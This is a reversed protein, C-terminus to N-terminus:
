PRNANSQDHIHKVVRAPGWRWVLGRSGLSLIRSLERFRSEPGAAPVGLVAVLLRRVACM